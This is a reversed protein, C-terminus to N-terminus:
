FKLYLLKQQNAWKLGNLSGGTVSSIQRLPKGTGEAEILEVGSVERVLSDISPRTNESIV